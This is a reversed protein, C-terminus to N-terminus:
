GDTNYHICGGCDDYDDMIQNLGVFQCPEAAEQPPPQLGIPDM